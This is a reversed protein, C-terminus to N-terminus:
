SQMKALRRSVIGLGIAPIMFVAFGAIINRQMEANEEDCAEKLETSVGIKEREEMMGCSNETNLVSAAVLGLPVVIALILCIIALGLFLQSKNTM